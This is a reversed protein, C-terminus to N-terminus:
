FGTRPRRPLDAVGAAALWRPRAKSPRGEEEGTWWPPARALLGCVSCGGAEMVGAGQGRRWATEEAPPVPIGIGGCGQVLGATM